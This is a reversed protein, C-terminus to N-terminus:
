ASGGALNSAPVGLMASAIPKPACGIVHRPEAAFPDGGILVVQEFVGGSAEGRDVAQPEDARSCLLHAHEREHQGAAIHELDALGEVALAKGDTGSMVTCGDSRCKPRSAM